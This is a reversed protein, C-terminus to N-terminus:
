ATSSTHAFLRPTTGSFLAPSKSQLFITGWLFTVFWTDTVQNPQYQRVMIPHPVPLIGVLTTKQLWALIAAEDDASCRESCLLSLTANKFFFFFLSLFLSISFSLRLHLSSLPHSACRGTALSHLQPVLAALMRDITAIPLQAKV